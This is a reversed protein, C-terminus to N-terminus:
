KREAARPSHEGINSTVASNKTVHAGALNLCMPPIAPTDAESDIVRCAAPLVPNKKFPVAFIGPGEVM